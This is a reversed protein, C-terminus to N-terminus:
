LNLGPSMLGVVSVEPILGTFNISLYANSFASYKSASCSIEFRSAM